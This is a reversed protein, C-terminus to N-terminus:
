RRQSCCNATEEKAGDSLRSWGRVVGLIRALAPSKVCFLEGKDKALGSDQALRASGNDRNWTKLEETREVEATEGPYVLLRLVM